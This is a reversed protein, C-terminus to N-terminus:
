KRTKLWISHVTGLTEHTFLFFPQLFLMAVRSRKEAPLLFAMQWGGKSIFFFFANSRTGSSTSRITDTFLCVKPVAINLNFTFVAVTESLGECLLPPSESARLELNM